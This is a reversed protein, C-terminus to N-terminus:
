KSTGSTCLFGKELGLAEEWLCFALEPYKWSKVADSDGM